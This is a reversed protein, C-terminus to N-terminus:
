KPPPSVTPRPAPAAAPAPPPPAAEVKLVSVEFVLASGGPIKEQARDGYALEPPIYLEWKAGPKMLVLAEQWGKIVGSVPFTAPTGRSYSSDFESGDILKGRYDATVKDNPHIAPASQDGASLVKYELGSATKVVGKAKANRDLFDKSAAKNRDLMAQMASRLYATMQVKEAQSPQKGQFGSKLGRNLAEISIDNTIGSNRLQWGFTEGFLFSAQEPTLPPGPDAGPATTPAPPGSAAGPNQAIALPVGAILLCLGLTLRLAELTPNKM